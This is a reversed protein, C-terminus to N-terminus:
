SPSFTLPAQYDFSKKGEEILEHFNLYEARVLKIM